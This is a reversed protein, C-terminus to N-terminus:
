NFLRYTLGRSGDRDYMDEGFCSIFACDLRNNTFLDNNGMNQGMPGYDFSPQTPILRPATDYTNFAEGRPIVEDIPTEIPPVYDTPLCGGRPAPAFGDPCNKEAFDAPFPKNLDNAPEPKSVVPAPKTQSVPNSAPVNNKVKNPNASAKKRFLLFLVLVGAGVYVLKKNM